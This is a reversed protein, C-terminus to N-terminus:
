SMVGPIEEPCSFGFVPLFFFPQGRERMVAAGQIEGSASGAASGAASWAASWAADWAADRAASWAADRAASWAADRAAVVKEWGADDLTDIHKWFALLVHAQDGIVKAPDTLVISPAGPQKDNTHRLLVAHARSIGLEAMVRTDADRQNLAKIDEPTMGAVVHLVQGQACMCGINEPDDTYSKWDILAGKYPKGEDTDWREILAMMKPSLNISM